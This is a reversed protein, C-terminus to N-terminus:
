FDLSFWFQGRQKRIRTQFELFANKFKSGPQRAKGAAPPNTCAGL